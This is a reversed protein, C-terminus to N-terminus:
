QLLGNLQHDDIVQNLVQKTNDLDVRLANVQATLDAFNDNIAGEQATTAGSGNIAPISVVTTNATGGTSDTLTASTLAAHTRTATAFTQTYAAPQATPATGYFGVNTGDHNFDGDLEFHTEFIVETEIRFRGTNSNQNTNWILDESAGSDVHVRSSYGLGDFTTNSGFVIPHDIHGLNLRTNSAFSQIDTSTFKIQGGFATQFTIDNDVSLMIFDTNLSMGGVGVGFSAANFGLSITDGATNEIVHFIDNAGGTITFDQGKTGFDVDGAEVMDLHIHPTFSSESVKFQAAGGYDLSMTVITTTAQFQGNNAPSDCFFRAVPIGLFTFGEFSAFTTNAADSMRVTGFAPTAPMDLYVALPKFTPFVTSGIVSTNSNALLNTFFINALPGMTISGNATFAGTIPGNTADLRFYTSNLPTVLDAALETMTRNVWQGSKRQAIDDNALGTFTTDTLNAFTHTHLADADSTDTLTEAEAATIDTNPDQTVAQTFTVQHPNSFNGTHGILVQDGRQLARRIETLNKVNTHIPGEVM